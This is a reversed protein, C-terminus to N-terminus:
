MNGYLTVFINLTVTCLSRQSTPLACTELWSGNQSSPYYTMVGNAPYLGGSPNGDGQVGPPDQFGLVGSSIQQVTESNPRSKCPLGFENRDVSAASAFLPCAQSVACGQCASTESGVIAEIASNASLKWGEGWSEPVSEGKPVVVVGGSGDAGYQATCTWGKPGVLMMLGRSDSYITLDGELALPM